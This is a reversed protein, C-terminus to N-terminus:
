AASTTTTATAAATTTLAQSSNNSTRLTATTYSKSDTIQHSQLYNQLDVYKQSNAYNNQESNLDTPYVKEPIPPNTVLRKSLDFSNESLSEIPGPPNKPITGM